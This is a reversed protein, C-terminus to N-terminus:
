GLVWNSHIDAMNVPIEFVKAPTRALILWPGHLMVIGIDTKEFIIRRRQGIQLQPRDEFVACFLHRGPYGPRRSWTSDGQGIDRQV